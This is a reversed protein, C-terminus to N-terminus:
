KTAINIIYLNGTTDTFAIKSGDASASPYMAIVDEGTLRQKKGDLDTAIVASATINTGDDYPEMGIVMENDMWKAAQLYGLEKVNSGDLDCVFCGKQAKYYLVKTGDPSLSPWLYSGRGQPDLITSQGNVTLVLHGHHIGVSTAKGAKVDGLSRTKAKAKGPVGTTASVINQENLTFGNFNRTAKVIEETKGTKLNTSKLATQTLKKKSTSRQRYVVNEGDSTIQLNLLSGNDTIKQTSGNALDVRSLGASAADSVVAFAGDPSIVAETVPMDSAINVREVSNVTLTRAGMPLVAGILLASIWLKKM